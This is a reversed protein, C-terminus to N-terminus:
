SDEKIALLVLFVMKTDNQEGSFRKKKLNNNRQKNQRNKKKVRIQLIKSKQLSKSGGLIRCRKRKMCMTKQANELNM